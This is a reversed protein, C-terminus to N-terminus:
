VGASIFKGNMEPHIDCKFSYDGAPLADVNYTVSGSGDQNQGQFLSKDGDYISVNHPFADENVFEITFAEDARVALCDTDFDSNTSKLTLPSSDPECSVAQADDGADDGGGGSGCGTLTVAGILAAILARKM